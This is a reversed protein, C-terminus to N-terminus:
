IAPARSDKPVRLGCDLKKPKILASTCFCVSLERYKSTKVTDGKSVKKERKEPSCGRTMRYRDKRRSRTLFRM